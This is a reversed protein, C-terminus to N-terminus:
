DAAAVGASDMAMWFIPSGALRVFNEAIAPNISRGSEREVAAIAAKPGGSVSAQQAIRVAAVIDAAIQDCEDIPAAAHANEDVLRLWMANHVADLRRAEVGISQIIKSGMYSARANRTFANSPTENHVAKTAFGNM